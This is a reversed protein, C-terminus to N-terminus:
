IFKTVIGQSRKSRQFTIAFRHAEDRIAQLLQLGKHKQGPRLPDKGEAYYVEELRKALSILPLKLGLSKLALEAARRQGEGGDIVILDPKQMSKSLSGGYRRSVVEKMAMYDDGDSVTKINFKRYKAKDPLGDTFTVMSAVTNTGGLHSIDFCEIHKPLKQLHVLEKLANVRESGAMFTTMINKDVLELLEKKEGREPVNIEIIKGSKQFFFEKLARDINHPLIIEQPLMTEGYYRLLFEELFDDTYEFSFAEKDELVGNRSTFILLYVYDGVKRYNLVQVYKTRTLEIRQKERLMELAELQKRAILAYEFNNVKAADDMKKSIEHVLEDVKGNLIKKVQSVRENYSCPEILQILKKSPPRTLIRFTRTVVDFIIKRMAGSVFPGFYEGKQERTRAVELYPLIGPALRLYAYRKSDKLDINYKPYHKKILSNELLLAEVETGTVFFDIKNIKEVLQATKPEHDKKQFYSGVRKRLNKAKGVYIVKGSEDYFLYCGPSEPLYTIEARPIM